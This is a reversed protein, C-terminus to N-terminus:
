RMQSDDVHQHETGDLTTSYTPGTRYSTSTLAYLDTISAYSSISENYRSVRALFEIVTLSKAM